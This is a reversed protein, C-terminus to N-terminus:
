ILNLTPLVDGLSRLAGDFDKENKSRPGIKNSISRVESCPIEARAAAYAVAFGEMNELEAGFKNFLKERRVFSASVGAVTISRCSGWPKGEEFSKRALDSVGSLKVRDYIDEDEKKWLPFSFARATVDSGDNLGYEPWIEETVLWLSRLPTKVLDYAGALGACLIADIGSVNKERDFTMGLALGVALAANLPGVGTNVFVLRGRKGEALM